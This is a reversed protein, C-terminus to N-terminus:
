DRRKRTEHYAQYASAFNETTGTWNDRVCVRDWWYHATEHHLTSAKYQLAIDGIIIASNNLISRTSDYFGWVEYPVEQPSMRLAKAFRGRDQMTSKSVIFLNVNFANSKCDKISLKKTELFGLVALSATEFLNSVESPIHTLLLSANPHEGDDSQYALAYDVEIGRVSFSKREVEVLRIGDLLEPSYESVELQMARELSTSAASNSATQETADLFIQLLSLIYVVPLLKRTRGLLSPLIKKL